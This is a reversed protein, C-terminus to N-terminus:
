RRAGMRYQYHEPVITRWAPDVITLRHQDYAAELDTDPDVWPFTMVDIEFLTAMPVPADTRELVRFVVFQGLDEVVESWTDAPLDFATGWIPLGLQQFPGAAHEGFLGEESPPGTWTGARLAALAEEAERKAALREEPNMLRTLARPMLYNTLALRRLQPTTAVQEVHQFWVSAADVEGALIPQDDIAVVTGSPWEVSPLDEEAPAEPGCAPLTVLLLGALANCPRAVMPSARIM